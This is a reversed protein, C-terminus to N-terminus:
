VQLITPKCDGVSTPGILTTQPPSDQETEWGSTAILYLRHLGPIWCSHYIKWAETQTAPKDCDVVNIASLGGHDRFILPTNSLFSIVSRNFSNWHVLFDFYTDHKDVLNMGWKRKYRLVGDNLSPRSGGFDILRCGLEKAHKVIFLDTAINAGAKVLAWEGNITGMALSHLTNGRRQFLVGSIPQSNQMVWVLGGQAFSRRMLYFNRIVAQQGHRNHM